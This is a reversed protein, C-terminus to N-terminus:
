SRPRVRVPTSAAGAQTSDAPVRVRYLGSRRLGAARFSWCSGKRAVAVARVRAFKGRRTWRELIAKSAGGAPCAYGSITSGKARSGRRVRAFVRLRRLERTRLPAAAEEAHVKATAARAGPPDFFLDRTSTLTGATGLRPDTNPIASTVYSGSSGYAFADGTCQTVSPTSDDLYYSGVTTAFSAELSDLISLAGQPGDVQEWSPAGATPMEPVGDVTVGSPNLDNRYTMGAAAPSYDFFDLVSPIAHVRLFTTIEESRRYFVHQRETYPGSNAGVYARIARVPGSRNVIFAGEGASFTDESRGCNGPAFMSKHRDLIDAGNASGAHISLGDDIWRDSFHQSYYPTAITSDEPNPGANLGYTTKYDGSGLDFDYDVYRKGAAPDLSGKARFLYLHEVSGGPLPDSIRVEVGSDAAVGGPDKSGSAKAGADGAMVAVEDDGDLSADPDAGVFTGPDTYTLQTVGVPDSDYASGLDILAREDVQVPVQKWGGKWRFAVLRGPTTGLLSPLEAGTIVVPADARSPAAAASGATTAACLAALTLASIAIRTMPPDYPRPGAPSGPNSGPNVTKSVTRMAM